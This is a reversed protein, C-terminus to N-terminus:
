TFCKSNGSHIFHAIYIFKGQRAESGDLPDPVQLCKRHTFLAKHKPRGVKVNDQSGPKSVHGVNGSSGELALHHVQLRQGQPFFIWGQCKSHGTRARHMYQVHVVGPTDTARLLEKDTVSSLLLNLSDGLLPQGVPHWRRPTGNGLHATGGLPSPESWGSHIRRRPKPARRHCVDASSRAPHYRVGECPEVVKAYIRNKGMHQTIPLHRSSSARHWVQQAM